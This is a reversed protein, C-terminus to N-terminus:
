DLPIPKDFVQTALEALASRVGMRLHVRAVRSRSAMPLEPDTFLAASVSLGNNTSNLFNPSVDIQSADGMLVMKSKEGARTLITKAELLSTNQFEDVVILARPISRGRMFEFTLLEFNSPLETVTKGGNKGASSSLTTLNDLYPRM